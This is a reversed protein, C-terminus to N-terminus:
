TELEAEERWRNMDRELERVRSLCEERKESLDFLEVKSEKIEAEKESTDWSKMELKVEVIQDVIRKEDEVLEKMEQEMGTLGSM